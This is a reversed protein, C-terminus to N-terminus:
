DSSASDHVGLSSPDDDLRRLVFARFEQRSMDDVDLMAEGVSSKAESALERAEKSAGAGCRPCYHHHPALPERCNSCPIRERTPGDETTEVVGAKQFIAENHEEASIHLYTKWMDTDISWHVRHEIESRDYGERSMRTIASHRFNHPNVPKDIGAKEAAQKLQQRIANPTLAGDDDSDEFSGNGHGVMKHFFAVDDLDPRPHETQFYTRMISKSDIIPYPIIDAGKLGKANPNPTYTPTESDLDVDGVRLTAALSVRCGCDALFEIFAMDRLNTAADSLAAIDEPQLMDDASVTTTPKTTVDYDHAWHDEDDAFEVTLFRRVAFEYNAVTGASMGPTDGRGYEESNALEFAYEHLDDETLEVLPADLRDATKRLNILYKSLTGSSTTKDVKSVFRKLARRDTEAHDDLADLERRLEEDYGQLDNLDAM